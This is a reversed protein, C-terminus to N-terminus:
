NVEGPAASRHEVVLRCTRDIVDPYIEALEKTPFGSKRLTEFILGENSLIQGAVLHAAKEVRGERDYDAGASAVDRSALTEKAIRRAAAYLRIIEGPTFGEAELDDKTTPYGLRDNRIFLEAMRVAVPDDNARVRPRESQATTDTALM